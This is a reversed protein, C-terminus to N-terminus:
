NIKKGSQKRYMKAYIGNREMLIKHNGAEAIGGQEMVYIRAADQINSLRHSIFVTLRDNALEWMKQFIEREALPDLASSPEDLILLSDRRVYIRALALRQLEGGSLFVGENGFERTMISHLGEPLSHIKEYLGCFKLAEEAMNLDEEGKLPRMWINEAVSVAYVQYDQFVIGVQRRWDELRYDAAARGNLRIEGGTPEYLGALLKMLTTKVAGTQGVVGVRYGRRLTFSIEHLVEAVTGPYCFSIQDVVVEDLKGLPERGQQYVQPQYELFERFHEIYISHEYLQPITKLIVLIQSSLQGVSTNLVVFDGIRLSGRITQFALYLLTMTTNIIGGSGQLGYIGALKKGYVETLQKLKEVASSFKEELVQTFEQYLRMEKAYNQLYYVRKTYEARRQYPMREEMYRHQIRVLRLNMGFTVAVQFAVFVLLFPKIGVLLALLSGVGFLASLFSSFTNLVALARSDAQQMAMSFRNYFTADEYCALEVQAAKQFLEMQMRQYIVQTNKQLIVQNVYQEVWVVALQYLAVGVIMCVIRSVQAKGWAQETSLTNIIYRSLLLTVINSVSSFLAFGLVIAIHGKCFRHIARLMYFNNILIHLNNEKKKEKMTKENM